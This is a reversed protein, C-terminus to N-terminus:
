AATARKAARAARAKKLNDVLALRRAASMKRKPKARSVAKKNPTGKAARFEAWRRKTAEIIARRGAASLRRKKRPQSVPTQQGDLRSKLDAIKSAIVQRQSEYGVIAMRLIESNNM